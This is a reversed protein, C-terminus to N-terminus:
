IDRRFDEFNIPHNVTSKATTKLYIDYDPAKRYHLFDTMYFMRTATIFCKMGPYSPNSTAAIKEISKYASCLRTYTSQFEVIKIVKTKAIDTFNPFNKM